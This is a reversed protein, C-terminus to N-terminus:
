SDIARPRKRFTICDRRANEKAEVVLCASMLFSLVISVFFVCSLLVEAEFCEKGAAEFDGRDAQCGASLGKLLLGIRM